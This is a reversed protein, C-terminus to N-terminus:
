SRTATVKLFAAAAFAVIAATNVVRPSRLVAFAPGERNSLRLTSDKAKETVAPV